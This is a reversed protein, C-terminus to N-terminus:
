QLAEAGSWGMRRGSESSDGGIIATDSRRLRREQRYYEGMKWFCM